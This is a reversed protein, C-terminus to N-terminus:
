IHILSLQLHRRKMCDHVIDFRPLFLVGSRELFDIQWLKAGVVQFFLARWEPLVYQFDIHQYRYYLGHEVTKSQLRLVAVYIAFNKSKGLPLCYQSSM